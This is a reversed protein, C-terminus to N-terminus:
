YGGSYDLISSTTTALPGQEGGRGGVLRSANRRRLDSKSKSRKELASSDIRIPAQEPARRTPTKTPEPM